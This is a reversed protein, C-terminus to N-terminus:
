KAEALVKEVADAPNNQMQGAARTYVFTTKLDSHGLSEALAEQSAGGLVALVAATHRLSHVCRGPIKLGAKKLYKDAINEIARTSLRHYGGVDFRFFLPAPAGPTIKPMNGPTYEIIEGPGVTNWKQIGDVGNVVYLPPLRAPHNAAAVWAMMDKRTSSCLVITRRKQGKGIVNLTSFSGYDLSDSNLAAVESVRLGHFIILRLLTADRIDQPAWSSPLAKLFTGAQEPTLAKRLVSSAGSERDKPARLGAAPNDPRLGWRHLATYLVRMACLNLATTQRKYGAAALHGRYRQLDEFTATKPDVGEVEAWGLFMAFGARYNKLTRPSASGDAVSLRLFKEFAAEASLPKVATVTTENM